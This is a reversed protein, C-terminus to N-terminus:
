RRGGGSSPELDNADGNRAHPPPNPALDVVVPLHDFLRGAADLLVDSELLGSRSLVAPSVTTTDLVFGGLMDLVSDTFLIRDLAAPPFEASSGNGFTYTKPATANHFPLADRLASDDWDPLGGHGFRKQNVISGNTLTAIHNAADTRYANWDGLLVIPTRPALDVDGGTTRLDHVWTAIADAQEQRAAIDKAEGRSQFHACVVYLEANGTAGSLHLMAMVHTRPVGGGWDQSRADLMTMPFRSAVVVDGRGHAQWRHGNPLPIAKDLLQAVDFANRPDDVEQMCVVDPTIAKALRIFRSPRAGDSRGFGRPGPDDFVSNAGINWTMVRVHPMPPRTIFSVPPTDHAVHVLSQLLGITLLVGTSNPV